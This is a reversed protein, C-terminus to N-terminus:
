CIGEAEKNRGHETQNQLKSNFDSKGQNSQMVVKRKERESVSSKSLLELWNRTGKCYKRSQGLDAANLACTKKTM